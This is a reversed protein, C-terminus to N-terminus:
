LGIKVMTKELVFPNKEKPLTLKFPLSPVERTFNKPPRLFVPKGNNGSEEQNLDEKRKAAYFVYPGGAL